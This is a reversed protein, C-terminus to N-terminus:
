QWGLRNSNLFQWTRTIDLIDVEKLIDAPFPAFPSALRVIRIAADDLVKQGSSHLVRIQQVNGDANIAVHLVLNGFLKKRRAEDPYNLNGIREVKRRWAELYSAYKHERTSASIAKRRPRKAYATSKRELESTLRAIEQNRSALLQAASVRRKPPAPTDTPTPTTRIPTKMPTPQPTALLRQPKPPAPEAKPAAPQDIVPPQAPATVPPEAAATTTLTKEQEGGGHQHSPAFFEAETPAPQPKEPARLLAVRLSQPRTPAPANASPIFGIGLLVAGHIAVAVLLTYALLNLPAKGETHRM